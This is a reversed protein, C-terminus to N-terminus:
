FYGLPSFRVQLEDLNTPQPVLGETASLDSVTERLWEKIGCITESVTYVHELGFVVSEPNYGAIAKKMARTSIRAVKTHISDHWGSPFAIVLEILHCNIGNYHKENLSGIVHSLLQTMFDEFVDAPEKSLTNKLLERKLRYRESATSPNTETSPDPLLLKINEVVFVEERPIDPFASDLYEQAEFGWRLLKKLAKSYILDTPVCPSGIASGVSAPWDTVDYVKGAKERRLKGKSDRYDLIRCFSATATSTGLDIGIVFGKKQM